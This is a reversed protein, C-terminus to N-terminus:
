TVAFAIPQTLVAYDVGAEHCQYGIFIYAQRNKSSLAEPAHIQGLNFEMDGAVITTASTYALMNAIELGGNADFNVGQWPHWEGEICQQWLMHSLDNHQEKDLWGIVAIYNGAKGADRPDPDMHLKVSLPSGSPIEGRRSLSPKFQTATIQRQPHNILMANNSPTIEHELPAADIGDVDSSRGGAWPRQGRWLNYMASDTVLMSINLQELALPQAELPNYCYCYVYRPETAPANIPSGNGYIQLSLDANLPQLDSFYIRGDGFAGSTRKAPYSLYEGADYACARIAAKSNANDSAPIAEINASAVGPPILVQIRVTQGAQIARLSPLEDPTYGKSIFLKPANAVPYNTADIAPLIVDYDWPM